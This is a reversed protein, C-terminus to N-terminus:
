RRAMDDAGLLPVAKGSAEIGDLSWKIEDRRLSRWPEDM